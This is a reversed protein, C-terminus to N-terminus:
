LGYKLANPINWFPSMVWIRIQWRFEFETKPWRNVPIEKKRVGVLINELHKKGPDGHEANLNLHVINM